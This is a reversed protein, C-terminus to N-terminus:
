PLNSLELGHKDKLTLDVMALGLKTKEIVALSEMASAAEACVKLDSETGVRQVLGHRMIPHDDILLIRKMM